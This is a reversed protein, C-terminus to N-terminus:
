TEERKVHKTVQFVRVAHILGILAAIWLLGTGVLWFIPSAENYVAYPDDAARQGDLWTTLWPSAILVSVALMSLANKATALRDEVPNLNSLEFGKLLGILVEKGIFLIIPV